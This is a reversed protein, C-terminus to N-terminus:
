RLVVEVIEKSLKCSVSRIYSWSPRPRNNRPFQYFAHLPIRLVVVVLLRSLFQMVDWVAKMYHEIRFPIM